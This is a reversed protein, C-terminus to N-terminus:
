RGISHPRRVTCRVQNGVAGSGAGIGKTLVVNTGNLTTVAWASIATAVQQLSTLTVEVPTDGLGHAVNGTTTDADATAAVDFTFANAGALVTTVTVAM